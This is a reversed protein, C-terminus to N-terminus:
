LTREISVAAHRKTYPLSIEGIEGGMEGECEYTERFCLIKEKYLVYVFFITTIMVLCLALVIIQANQNKDNSNDAANSEEGVALGEAFFSDAVSNLCHVQCWGNSRTVRREDGEDNCLLKFSGTFGDPCQIEQKEGLPIDSYQVLENTGPAIFDGGTCCNTCIAAQYRWSGSVCRVEGNAYGEDYELTCTQDHEVVRRGCRSRFHYENRNQVIDRNDCSASPEIPEDVTCWHGRCNGCETEGLLCYSNTSIVNSDKCWDADYGGQPCGCHRNYCTSGV